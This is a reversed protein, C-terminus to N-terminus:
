MFTKLIFKKKGNLMEYVVIEGTEKKLTTNITLGPKVDFSLVNDKRLFMKPIIVGKPTYLAKLLLRTKEELTMSIINFDDIYSDFAGCFYKM